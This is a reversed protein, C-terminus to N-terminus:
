YAKDDKFVTIATIILIKLDLMPSWNRLYDLDYNVRAQMAELTSTEGRCGNIQALGTIGPPVKHRVMYGKILKRYMENHAVAHPRPGVLSMRGQLVNVLQPLEDLSYRRLFRGVRTIRQDDKTAQPVISGDETVKMTRFKYVVIEEGDLGYRRQRFIVPGPSSVRVLMAVLLMVPLLLVLGALTFGIDTLRKVVGRYGYFPTECMSVVPIGGVEVTRAQILDFVFIDPVYYISATTDRLDDLLDLVRKLHRIPLAIFIVQVGESKAYAALDPLRGLLQENTGVGLRDAARDDFYGVLRLGLDPNARLNGALSQSVENFGAFVVKRLNGAQSMMRRLVENFLLSVLILSLPAVLAWTLLVRRSFHASLKFIFGIALLVVVLAGWRLFIGLAMPFRDVFLNSSSYRAPQLLLVALVGVIVALASYFDDWINGYAHACLWFSGMVLLPQVLYQLAGVFAVGVSRKFIDAQKM